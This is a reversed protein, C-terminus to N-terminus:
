SSARPSVESSFTTEVEGGPPQSSNFKSGGTNTPIHFESTHCSQRAPPRPRFLPGERHGLLSVRSYSDPLLAQIRTARSTAGFTWLPPRRVAGGVSRGRHAGSPITGRPFERGSCSCDVPAHARMSPERQCATVSLSWPSFLLRRTSGNAHLVFITPVFGQHRVVSSNNGRSTTKVPGNSVSRRKTQTTTM